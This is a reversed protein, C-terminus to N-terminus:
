EGKSACACDELIKLVQERGRVGDQYWPEYAHSFLINKVREDSKIKEITKIYEAKSELSCRYKGVGEGQLGDGSILTGSQEDFIGIMDVTHGKLEYVTVGNKSFQRGNEVTEISPNLQLIRNKGGAHDGHKHTVILYRIDTWALGIEELAPTIYGDVDQETTACDVLINENETKILFVSTYLGEFPVKLRYIRGIEKQFSM